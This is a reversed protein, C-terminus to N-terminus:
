SGHFTQFNALAIGYLYAGTQTSSIFKLVSLVHLNLFVQRGDMEVLHKHHALGDVLLPIRDKAGGHASSCLRSPCSM